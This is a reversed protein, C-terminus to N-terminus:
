IGLYDITQEYAAVVDIIAGYYYTLNDFTIGRVGQDGIPTVHIEEGTATGDHSTREHQRLYPKVIEFIADADQEAKGLTGQETNGTLIVLELQVREEVSYTGFQGEVDRTRGRQTFIFPLQADSISKPKYNTAHNVTYGAAVLATQAMNAVRQRLQGRTVTM